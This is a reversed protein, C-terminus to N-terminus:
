QRHQHPFGGGPAPRHGACLARARVQRDRHFGREVPTASAAVNPVTIQKGAEIKAGANLQKLYGPQHPIKRGPSRRAVRVGAGEDQRTRGDRVPTKEFPGAADKDTVTYSTLLPAGDKRLSTWTEATVTGTVKLDHATQYAKVMRQMNAAFRGDIEGCSFWTRDLMIQARAVAAGQSGSRLLPSDTANNFSEVDLPQNGAAKAKPKAAWAGHGALGLGTLCLALVLTRRSLHAPALRISSNAALPM